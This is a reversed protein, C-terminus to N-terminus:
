TAQCVNRASTRVIAHLATSHALQVAGLLLLMTPLLVSLVLEKLLASSVILAALYANM